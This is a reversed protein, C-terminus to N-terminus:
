MIFHYSIYATYFNMNNNRIDFMETDCTLELTIIPLAINFIMSTIQM